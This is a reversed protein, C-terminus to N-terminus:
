AGERRRALGLRALVEALAGATFPKLLTATLGGARALAEDEADRVLPVLPAAGSRAALRGRAAALLTSGREDPLEVDLFVVTWARRELRELLERASGVVVVEDFGGRELERALLRASVFSDEAVLARRPAAEPAPTAADLPEVDAETLAGSGDAPAVEPPAPEAPIAEVEDPGLVSHAAPPLEPMPLDATLAGPDLRWHVRGDDTRVAGSLGPAPPPGPPEVGVAPLRWIIRDASVRARKLGHGVHVVPLERASGDLPALPAVLPAGTEADARDPDLLALRQVAHWPLALALAGQEFMLFSERRTHAPLRLRWRRDTGPAPRANGGVSALVEHVAELGAPSPALCTVVLASEELWVTPPRIPGAGGALWDLAARLAAAVPVELRVRAALAAAEPGELPFDELADALTVTAVAPAESAASSRPESWEIGELESALGELERDAEAFATWSRDAAARAALRHLREVAPALEAPWARGAHPELAAILRDLGGLGLVQAADRARAPAEGAAGPALAREIAAALEAAIARSAADEAPMM